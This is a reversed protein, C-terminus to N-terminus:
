PKTASSPVLTQELRDVKEILLKMPVPGWYNTANVFVQYYDYAGRLANVTSITIALIVLIKLLRIDRTVGRDTGMRELMSKQHQEPLRGTGKSQYVWRSSGFDYESITTGSGNVRECIFPIEPRMAGLSLDILMPTKTDTICVIHTDLDDPVRNVPFLGTHGVLNLGPPNIGIITTKCEQIHSNIGKQALLTVMMDSMALCYGTGRQIIGSSWLEKVVEYVKQYEPDNLLIEDTTQFRPIVIGQANLQNNM